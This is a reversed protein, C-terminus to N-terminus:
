LGFSNNSRYFIATYFYNNSVPGLGVFNLRKFGLGLLKECGEAYRSRNSNDWIIIGENKLATVAIVACDVRRRGDIVVVDYQLSSDLVAQVYRDGDNLDAYTIKVNDPASTSVSKCWDSHHEVAHVLSCRTAWWLTSNGCGYEFVRMNPRVRESLFHIASYAYWPLPEGNFGLANGAAFSKFWGIDRLYGRGRVSLCAFLYSLAQSSSLVRRIFQKIRKLFV